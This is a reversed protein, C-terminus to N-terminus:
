PKVIELRYTNTTKNGAQDAISIDLVFRGPPIEANEVQLATGRIYPKLMHTLSKSFLGKRAEVDLSTMDVPTTRPQFLVDINVPTAAEISPGNAEDVVKPKEVDIIPGASSNLTHPVNPWEQKTHRLKAADREQLLTIHQGSRSASASAALALTVVSIMWLNTNITKWSFGPCSGSARVGARGDLEPISSQNEATTMSKM